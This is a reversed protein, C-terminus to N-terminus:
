SMYLVQLELDNIEWGMQFRLSENVIQDVESCHFFSLIEELDKFSPVLSLSFDFDINRLFEHQSESMDQVIHGFIRIEM